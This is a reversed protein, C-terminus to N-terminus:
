LFYAKISSNPNELIQILYCNKILSNSFLGNNIHMIKFLHNEILSTSSCKNRSINSVNRNSPNKPQQKKDTEGVLMHINLCAPIKDIKSVATDGPDLATSVLIQPSFSSYPIYVVNHNSYFILM